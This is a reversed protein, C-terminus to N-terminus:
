LLLIFIIEECGEEVHLVVLHHLNLIIKLSHFVPHSAGDDFFATRNLVNIYNGLSLNFYAEHDLTCIKRAILLHQM